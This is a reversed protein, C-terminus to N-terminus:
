GKLFRVEKLNLKFIDITNESAWGYRELKQISYVSVIKKSREFILESLAEMSISEKTRWKRIACGYKKYRDKSTSM